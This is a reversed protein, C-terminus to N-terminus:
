ARMGLAFEDSLDKKAQAVASRLEGKTYGCYMKKDIFDAKHAAYFRVVVDGNNSCVDKTATVKVGKKGNVQVM